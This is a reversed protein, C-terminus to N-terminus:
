RGRAMSTQRTLVLSHNILSMGTGFDSQVVEPQGKFGGGGEEEAAEDRRSKTARPATDKGYM